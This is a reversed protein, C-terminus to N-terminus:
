PRLLRFLAAATRFGKRCLRLVSDYGFGHEAAFDKAIVKSGGELEVWVNSSRNRAQQMATAWVCNTPEYGKANDKREVTHRESPCEGMDALFAEFSNWRECVSVGGYAANHRVRRRLGVWRRHTLTRSKGHTVTIARLLRGRVEKALCGCSRTARKTLNYAVVKIENGCACRCLFKLQRGPVRIAEIVELREVKDGVKVKTKAPM